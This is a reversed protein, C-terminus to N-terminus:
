VNSMASLPLMALRGAKVWVTARGPSSALMWHLLWLSAPHELYPDLADGFLLKGLAGTDIRAAREGSVDLASLVDTAIAWHKISLVMNKGVGFIAIASDENFITGLTEGNAKELAVADYAKKLWGYRLPFTEHGAFQLRTDTTDIISRPM